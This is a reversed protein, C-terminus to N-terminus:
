APVDTAQGDAVLAAIVGVLTALTRPKPLFAAFRCRDLLPRNSGASMLVVPVTALAPDQTLAACLAIGDMEPMMIDTVVAPRLRQAAALAQGGNPATTVQYREDEFLDRLLERLVPEDDVVLILAPAM